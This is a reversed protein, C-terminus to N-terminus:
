IWQLRRGPFPVAKEIMRSQLPVFPLRYNITRVEFSRLDRWSCEALKLEAALTEDRRRDSM